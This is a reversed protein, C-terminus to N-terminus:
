RRGVGAPADRGGRGHGPPGRGAPGVARCRIHLGRVGGPDARSRHRGRAYVTGLAIRPGHVECKGGLVLLEGVFQPRPEVVVQRSEEFLLLEVGVRRERALLGLQAPRCPLAEEVLAAPGCGVPGLLVAAAVGGGHLADEVGLDHGLVACRAHEVGVPEPLDAGHDDGPAGLLLLRPPEGRDEVGGVVPALPEGLRVGAVVQGVQAGGGDAVAVVVHDVALLDPDGGGVQGLPPQEQEAGVRGGDLPAGLVLADGGEDEVELGGADLPPGIRSM